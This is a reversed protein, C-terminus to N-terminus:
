PVQLDPPSLRWQVFDGVQIDKGPLPFRLIGSDSLVAMENEFRFIEIVRGKNLMEIPKALVSAPTGMNTVKGDEIVLVKDAMRAVELPDHSVLIM